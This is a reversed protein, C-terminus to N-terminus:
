VPPCLLVVCMTHDLSRGSVITVLSNETNLLYWEETTEFKSTEIDFM